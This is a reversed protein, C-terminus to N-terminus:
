TAEQELRAVEAQSKALRQRARRAAQQLSRRALRRQDAATQQYRPTLQNQQIAAELKGITVPDNTAIDFAFYIELFNGMFRVSASGVEDARLTFKGEEGAFDPHLTQQALLELLVGVPDRHFAERQLRGNYSRYGGPSVLIYREAQAQRFRAFFEQRSEQTDPVFIIPPTSDM